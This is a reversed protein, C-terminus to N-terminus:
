DEITFPDNVLSHVEVLLLVQNKWAKKIQNLFPLGKKEKLKVTERSVIVCYIVEEAMWEEYIFVKM